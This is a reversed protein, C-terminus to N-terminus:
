PLCGAAGALGSPQQTVALVSGDLALAVRGSGRRVLLSSGDPAFCPHAGAGIPRPSADAAERLVIGIAGLEYAMRRGDPAVVANIAGPELTAILQSAGAATHRVVTGGPEHSVVAVGGDNLPYGAYDLEDDSLPTVAGSSPAVRVVHSRFPAETSSVALLLLSGDATAIPSGLFPGDGIQAAEGTTADVRWLAGRGDVVALWSGDLAFGAALLGPLAIRLQSGDASALTLSGSTQGVEDAVAAQSGDASVALLIGTGPARVELLTASGVRHPLLGILAGSRAADAASIRLVDPPRGASTAGAALIALLLPVILAAGLWRADVLPHRPSALGLLASM